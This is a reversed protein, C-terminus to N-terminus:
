SLKQISEETKNRILPLRITFTTGKGEESEFWIKGDHKEIFTKVLYLGVGFGSPVKRRANESRFFQLFIKQQDKQPIGIGTDTISLFIDAQKEELEVTISGKDTYAIANEFLTQIANTIKSKDIRLSHDSPPPFNLYLTLNKKNAEPAFQDISNKILRQFEAMSVIEFNYSIRGMSAQSVNLLHEVAELAQIDIQYLKELDEKPFHEPSEQLISKLSWRIGALPTRIFHLLMSIFADKSRNAEWLNNLEFTKQSLTSKTFLAYATIIGLAIFSTMLAAGEIIGAPSSAFRLVLLKIFGESDSPIKLLIILNLILWGLFGGTLGGIIILLTPKRM